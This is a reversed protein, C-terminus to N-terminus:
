LSAKSSTKMLIASNFEGNIQTRLERKKEKLTVKQQVFGSIWWGNPNALIYQICKNHELATGCIQGM